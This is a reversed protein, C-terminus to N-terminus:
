RAGCDQKAREVWNEYRPKLGEPAVHAADMFARLAKECRRRALHARGLWYYGDPHGEDLRIAKQAQKEADAYRELAVLAAALERRTGAHDPRRKVSAGYAAAAEAYRELRYLLYGREYHVRADDQGTAVAQDLAALAAPYRGVDDSRALAYGLEYWADAWGPEAAVVEELAAIGRDLRGMEVYTYGIWYLAKLSSEDLRRSACLATLAADRRGLRSRTIGQAMRARFSLPDKEAALESQELAERDEGRALADWASRVLAESEAQDGPLVMTRPPPPLPVGECHRLPPPGPPEPAPEEAAVPPTTSRPPPGGCAALAQLLLAVGVLRPWSREGSRLRNSANM